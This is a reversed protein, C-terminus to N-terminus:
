HNSNAYSEWTRKLGMDLTVVPEWELLMEAKQIDPVRREHVGHELDSGALTIQKGSIAVLKKALDLISIEEAGGLHIVQKNSHFDREVIKELADIADSIYLPARTDSAMGFYLPNQGDQIRRILSDMLMNQNMGPGYIDALRVITYTFLAKTSFYQIALEKYFNTISGAWRFSLPDTWGIQANEQVPVEQKLGSTVVM